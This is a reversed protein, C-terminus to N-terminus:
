PKIRKLYLLVEEELELLLQRYEERRAAAKDSTAGSWYKLAKSCARYDECLSQFSPDKSFVQQIKESHQPFRKLVFLRNAKKLYEKRNESAM